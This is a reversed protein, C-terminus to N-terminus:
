LVLVIFDHVYRADLQGQHLAEHQHPVFCRQFRYGCGNLLLDGLLDALVVKRLLLDRLQISATGASQATFAHSVRGFSGGCAVSRVLWPHFRMVHDHLRLCLLLNIRDPDM